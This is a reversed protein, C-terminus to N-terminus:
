ADPNKERDDHETLYHAIGDDRAAQASSASGGAGCTPCRWFRLRTDRRRAGM